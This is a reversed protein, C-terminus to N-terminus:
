KYERILFDEISEKLNYFEKELNEDQKNCKVTLMEDIESVINLNESKELYRVYSFDEIWKYTGKIKNDISPLVLCPTATLVSFIMGHLRDTVVIRAQSFQLLLSKVEYERVQRYIRRAVCTDSIIVSDYANEIKQVIENRNSSIVSEKDNRLCCLINSRKSYDFKYKGMLYYVIDPSLIVNKYLMKMKEYSYTERAICLFHKANNYIKCGKKIQRNEWMNEEYYFSQPMSIIKYEKLEKIIIRRTVEADFYLTGFNGGGQLVVLDKETIIKKIKRVMQISEKFDIEVINYQPFYDKFFQITSHVIAEDGVNGFSPIMFFYLNQGETKINKRVDGFLYKIISKIEVIKYYFM